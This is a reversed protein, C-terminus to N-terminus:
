ERVLEDALLDMLLNDHWVGDSGREYDRAIGIPRFGVKEYARIARANDAAPDITLRHHGREDILWASLLRLAETGVGRGITDALLSIDIGASFYGPDLQENFDLIGVSRGGAEIVLLHTMEDCLWRLMTEPDTSWRPGSEPDAAIASAFWEREGAAPPRITIRKTSLTPLEIAPVDM